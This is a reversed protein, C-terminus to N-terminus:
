LYYVWRLYFRSAAGTTIGDGLVPIGGFEDGARGLPEIWGVQVTQKDGPVYSLGVQLLSSADHLNTILTTTQSLLPHWEYSAGLALYDRMLNFVEGRLLRETLGQPLTDIREPLQSVGWGNHFYEAFFYATREAIVHSIDANLIGSYVWGGGNDRTAVLDARMLGQGIPFRVSSAYVPEGYHEGAAAEFEIPGAYGHWKLATSAVDATAEGTPNRRAIYLLQLDHGNDLLRSIKVLDDGAKYDRDVVTPSFPSFLDMPQFVMGSGWSVAERGITVDWNGRQWNVAVRDLRHLATHRRGQDINWTWDWRRREDDRATQDVTADGGSGLLVGDGNLWITSHHLLLKFPGVEQSAMVRVDASHDYAPTGQLQRQSDHSPFMSATSFWKLRGELELGNANLTTAVGLLLCLSLLCPRM